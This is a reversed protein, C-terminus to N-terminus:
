LEFRRTGRLAAGAISGLLSGDPFVSYRGRGSSQQAVADFQDFRYAALATEDGSTAQGIAKMAAVDLGLVPGCGPRGGVAFERGELSVINFVFPAPKGASEVERLRLSPRRLNMAALWAAYNQRRLQVPSNQIDRPGDSAPPDVFILASSHAGPTAERLCAYVVYGKAPPPNLRTMWPEVQNELARKLVTKIATPDNVKQSFSAKSEVIASSGAADAFLFDAMPLQKGKADATKMGNDLLYSRLHGSFMYGRSQAFLITLGQGIRGTLSSQSIDSLANIAGASLTMGGKKFDLLEHSQLLFGIGPLTANRNDLFDAKIVAHALQWGTFAVANSVKSLKGWDPANPLRPLMVTARDLEFAPLQTQGFASSIKRIYNLM